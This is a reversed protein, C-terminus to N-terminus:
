TILCIGIAVLIGVLGNGMPTHYVASISMQM